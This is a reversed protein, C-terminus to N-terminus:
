ASAETVGLMRRGLEEDSTSPPLDAVIRGRALVLIRSCLARLEDLDASLVLVGAGAAAADRLRQRIDASAGLDVGRTPHAAVLVRARDKSLRALARAVVIKQQNGGSLGRAPRDLDQPAGSRALREAAEKELARLDLLGLHGAFTGLEGLVLNDRVSADLVLGQVQRDERIVSTEAGTVEGSDPARDRALLAVLERQGNGEVGAVGVIEGAHLTLSVGSLGRGASVDRVELVVEEGAAGAADRHEQTALGSRGAGMIAATVEEIQSELDAGAGRDLPKTFVLDGRRMVTVLDAHAKVEDMKHTVVVVGTGADALRRLTSYLAAAEGKTLVATPEDLILLKADRYLARAIELRQRDGVGLSEVLADLPLDVGLEKAVAEARRRATKLDIVGLASTPEAGLVINELATFVPVLAFHQLVMGIGRRIGERPTHPELRSGFAEVHGSDPVIMGAVVKLLTSKGAGNEGCLAHIVGAHFSVTASRVAVVDGLTKVVGVARALLRLEDKM